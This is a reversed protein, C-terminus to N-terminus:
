FKICFSESTALFILLRDLVLLWFTGESWALEIWCCACLLCVFLNYAHTCHCPPMFLGCRFVFTFLNSELCYSFSNVRTRQQRGFACACLVLWGISSNMRLEFGREVRSISSPVHYWPILWLTFDQSRLAARGAVRVCVTVSHMRPKAFAESMCNGVEIPVSSALVSAPNQHLQAEPEGDSGQPFHPKKVTRHESERVAGAPKM